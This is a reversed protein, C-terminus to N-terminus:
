TEEKAVRIKDFLDENIRSLREQLLMEESRSLSSEGEHVIHNRTNLSARVIERDLSGIIRNESLYDLLSSVNTNQTNTARSDLEFLARALSEFAIWERLLKLNEDDIHYIERQLDLRERDQERLFFSFVAVYIAALAAIVPAFDQFHISFRDLFYIALLTAAGIISASSLATLYVRRRSRSLAERRKRDLLRDAIKDSFITREEQGAVSDERDAM